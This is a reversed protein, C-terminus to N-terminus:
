SRVLIAINDLMSGSATPSKWEAEAPVKGGAGDSVEVPTGSADVVSAKLTVATTLKNIVIITPALDWRQGAATVAIEAPGPNLEEVELGTQPQKNLKVIVPLEYNQSNGDSQLRITSGAPINRWIVTNPSNAM